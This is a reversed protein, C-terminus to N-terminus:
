EVADTHVLHRRDDDLRLLSQVVLRAVAVTIANGALKYLESDKLDVPLQYAQSFGQLNFTERPTLKRVGRGDRIVAVNNGGTGMGATLTPVVHSKNTRIHDRRRQYVTNTTDISQTGVSTHPTYYYHAPITHTPELMSRVPLLPVDTPQIFEFRQADTPDRFWLM